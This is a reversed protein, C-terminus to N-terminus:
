HNPMGGRVQLYREPGDVFYDLTGTANRSIRISDGDTDVFRVEIPSEGHHDVAPAMTGVILKFERIPPTTVRSSLWGDHSVGSIHLSRGGEQLGRFGISSHEGVHFDTLSNVVLDKGPGQAWYDVGTGIRRFTVVDGDTDVFSIDQKATVM